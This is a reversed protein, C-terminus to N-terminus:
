GDIARAFRVGIWDQRDSATVYERFSSRMRAPNDQFSGGRIIRKYVDEVERVGDGARPEDVAYDSRGDQCWEAVNGLIGYLGYPNSKFSMVEAHVTHGDDYSREYLFFDGGRNNYAHQDALNASGSITRAKVGTWWPTGSGARAVCEWQAESPLALGYRRAVEAAELWSVNEVPNLPTRETGRGDYGPAYRSPNSGTLRLWQAQTTEYKSVFFDDLTVDHIPAEDRYALQTRNGQGDQHSPERPIDSGMRFTQGPILVLVLGSEDLPALLGEPSRVLPAGTALEAFEELGSKPDPGLPLLGFQPKLELGAYLPNALLRTGLDRWAAAADEISRQAVLEASERRRAMAAIEGQGAAGLSQMRELLESALDHQWQVEPDEFSWQRTAQEASRLRSVEAALQALAHDISARGADDQDLGERDRSLEGQRAILRLREAALEPAEAASEEGLERLAFLHQAHTSQNALLERADAEWALMAEVKEPRAPWLEDARAQLQDLRVGDALRMVKARDALALEAQRAKEDVQNVLQEVKAEAVVKAEISAEKEVVAEKLNAEVEQKAQEVVLKAQEVEQKAQEVVLVEEKAKEAVQVAEVKAEVAKVKEVREVDVQKEAQVKGVAFVTTSGMLILVTAAVAALMSYAAKRNRRMWKKFEAIPGSEYAKVVRDELFARLDDGLAAMSAYRDAPKRQMAKACISALEPALSPAAQEIPLPAGAKVRQWILKGSLREGSEVYPAHGAFLQYLMAGLAYIDSAPGISELDGEAQEPPMFAPTGMVDGDMTELLEEQEQVTGKKRDTEVLTLSAPADDAARPRLDKTDNRDVLRALGWDMVYVEGFRGVMVNGPKMDRHIVRKSHAFSMAECVKLMVGLARTLTWGQQEAWVLEFIKSLDQGRVLRMTFYPHGNDDLGLEHVPVIGPHDLQSTIQAEELFRALNRGVAKTTDLPGNDDSRVVKMAMNRRLDPDWVKLIRGMGGRGVEGCISFRLQNSKGEVLRQVLSHVHSEDWGAESLNERAHRLLFTQDIEGGARAVVRRMSEWEGHLQRLLGALRPHAELLPEISAVADSDQNRTLFDSFLIRAEERDASDGTPLTRMMMSDVLSAGPQEAQLLSELRQWKAHLVGLESALEAHEAAFAEFGPAAGRDAAMLYEAFVEEAQFSPKSDSLM